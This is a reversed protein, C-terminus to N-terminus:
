RLHFILGTKDDSKKFRPYALCEPDGEELQVMREAYTELGEQLLLEATYEWYGRGKAVLEEPLFLGDSLVILQKLQSTNIKGYEVFDMAEPEGNLVGYGKDTNSLHRNSKLGTSIYKRLQKRTTLGSEVGEKWKELARAELHIVQRRSLLRVEEHEYIALGMCDGTQIYELGHDTLQFIFLATGWLQDKDALDISYGMMEERIRENIQQVASFLSTKSEMQEFTSKVTQAALYGGTLGDENKFDGLSTVGDAVGYIGLSKNLVLADENLQNEGRLTFSDIKGKNM